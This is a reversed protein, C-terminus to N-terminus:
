AYPYKREVFLRHLIQTSLIGLFAANDRFGAARGAACKKVLREVAAPDFLGARKVAAGSLDEMLYDPLPDTFFSEKNPAGYPQKNRATIAPPLLGSFAKKLAYKETLGRIKLKPPITAAYEALRHDLFPFRGEVSHAMAMREGQSNLLYESLLLRCELYQARNLPHWRRFDAPLSYELDETCDYGELEARLDPHLFMKAAATNNWTIRHSYGFDDTEELGRRYFAVFMGGGKKLDIQAHPYLRRLVKSEKFIDYGAFLEDAGEGTLVVKFDRERVLRSLLYMPAPAARLVPKEGHWVVEPFHGGVDDYAIRVVNHRTGLHAAVQEQWPSEDYDPDAFAISFTELPTDTFHRVSSAIISSDLGGSLYGGVPVDARLRIRVSDKLMEHITGTVEDLSPDGFEDAAPFRLDWWRKLERRGQRVVLMHGAPLTRVESFITKRPLVTWLTFVQDLAQADINLSLGPVALFAKIESAFYLRGDHRCTFLPCIGFRDRALVMRQRPADWLAIAFQGNLRQLFEDGEEEYLHVLVETDSSTRFTHGKGELEERLEIYNFIEGNFVVWITGAENSLPQQGTTLDIISLRSHGLAAGPLFKFGEEDPGRHHLMKVMGPVVQRAEDETVRKSIIGCIGCM